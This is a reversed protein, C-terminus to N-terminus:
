GLICGDACCLLLGLEFGDCSGVSSLSKTGDSSGLLLEDVKGLWSGVDAGVVLGLAFSENSGVM